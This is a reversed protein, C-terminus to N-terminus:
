KALRHALQIAIVNSNSSGPESFIRPRFYILVKPSHLNVACVICVALSHLNFVQDYRFYKGKIPVTALDQPHLLVLPTCTALTSSAQPLPAVQQILQVRQILM